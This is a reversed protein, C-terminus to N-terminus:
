PRIPQPDELSALCREMYGRLHAVELRRAAHQV